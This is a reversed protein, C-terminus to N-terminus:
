EYKEEDKDDDRNINRSQSIAIIWFCVSRSFWVVGMASIGNNSIFYLIVAQLFGIAPLYLSINRSMIEEVFESKPSLVFSNGNM